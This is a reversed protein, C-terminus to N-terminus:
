SKGREKERSEPLHVREVATRDFEVQVKPAIEVTVVAESLAVIRGHLGSAMTVRDNKKLDALLAEHDRRKKQEPRILLLYFIAVMAVLFPLGSLASAADTGGVGQAFAVSV